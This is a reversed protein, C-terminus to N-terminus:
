FLVDGNIFLVVLEICAFLLGTGSTSMDKVGLM